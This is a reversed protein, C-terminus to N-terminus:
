TRESIKRLAAGCRCSDPIRALRSRDSQERLRNRRWRGRCDQYLCWTGWWRQHDTPGIYSTKCQTKRKCLSFLKPRNHTYSSEFYDLKHGHYWLTVSLCVANSYCFRAKCYTCRTTSGSCITIIDSRAAVHTDLFRSYSIDLGTSNFPFSRCSLFDFYNYLRHKM